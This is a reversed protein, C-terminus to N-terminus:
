QSSFSLLGVPKMDLLSTFIRQLMEGTFVTVKELKADPLRIIFKGTDVEVDFVSVHLARKTRERTERCVVCIILQGSIPGPKM